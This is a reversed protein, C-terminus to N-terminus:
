LSEDFATRYRAADASVAFFIYKGRVSQVAHELLETQEPLYDGYEGTRQLIRAKVAELVRDIQDTSNVRIVLVEEASLASSASYYMVGSYDRSNLGFSRKLAQGDREVMDSAELVPSMDAKVDEFARTSGGAFILLFVIYAAALLALIYKLIQAIGPRGDRM